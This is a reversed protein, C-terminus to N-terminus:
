TAGVFWGRVSHAYSACVTLLMEPVIVLEMWHMGHTVYNKLLFYALLANEKSRVEQSNCDPVGEGLITMEWHVSISMHALLRGYVAEEYFKVTESAKGQADVHDSGRVKVVCLYM